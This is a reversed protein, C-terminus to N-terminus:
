AEPVRRKIRIEIDELRRERLDSDQEQEIDELNKDMLEPTPDMEEFEESSSDGEFGPQRDPDQTGEASQKMREMVDPTLPDEREVLAAVKAGGPDFVSGVRGSDRQTRQWAGGYAPYDLDHTDLCIRCGGLSLLSFALSFISVPYFFSKM